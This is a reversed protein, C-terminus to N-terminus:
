TACSAAESARCAPSSWRASCPTSAPMPSCWARCPLAVTGLVILIRFWQSDVTQHILVPLAYTDAIQQFEGSEKIQDIARNLQALTAANQSARSLMFHIETTLRLPHEEIDRSRQQRWAVTAAVIRDAFFGDIHGRLLNQLNENDDGVRVIFDRHDPDDIFRNIRPDAYIFGAVVGLRFHQKEFQDLMQELSRFPYRTSAGSRLVLVDTEQRYPKSFYAYHNREESYTAGAAVDAQGAALAALHDDWALNPLTWEIGMARALAREIEVDFGTLVTSGRQVERYQYPDWPYWGGRFVKAQPSPQRLSPL